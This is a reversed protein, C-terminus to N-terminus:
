GAVGLIKMLAKHSSSREPFFQLEGNTVHVGVQRLPETGSFTFIGTTESTSFELGTGDLQLKDIAFPTM